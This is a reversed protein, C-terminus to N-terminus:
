NRFFINQAKELPYSVLSTGDRNAADLKVASLARNEYTAYYYVGRSPSMCSSYVTYEFEGGQVECCGRTQEVASLIHFFQTVNEEENSGRTANARTFAARVFRSASSLDGPLGLAGMGRSDCRLPLLPSFRNEPQKPSLAMFYNLMHLQVPFPPNNTLVGTLNDYIHLGDVQPEIVLTSERDALLWHLQSPPLAPSFAECTLNLNKLRVRAEKVSGCQGLLWPIFAYQAVNEMGAAGSQAYHANGVFNLGAMCLGAENMADFYLPYNDSILAMGVIAYRTKEARVSSIPLHFGRPTIVVSEGFSKEYDLTRGMYFSDARFTIATCM